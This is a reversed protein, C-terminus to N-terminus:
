SHANGTLEKAMRSYEKAFRYQRLSYEGFEAGFMRKYECWNSWLLGGAAVYCYIKVRTEDPCVNEFYIDTLRDIEERGYMSYICFMAIDIHPDCMGAYEWDTLQLMEEGQENESFLFNDCVADIHALVKEGAHADIYPKLSFVDARTKEYDRYISARGGRLSEYFEIQGFIDFERGTKLKMGHFQRLKAMCRGIDRGSHPDCVRVDKLFRTIKYGSVPDMYVADDCIGRGSIVRLAEAEGARDILRNTGEGPVRFIYKEGRCGFVFSRNTMGKKLLGEEKIGDTPVGLVRSIIDLEGSNLRTRPSGPSDLQEFSSIEVACRGPVIRAPLLMRNGRYLAEEWPLSRGAPDACLRRINERVAAADGPSIYAIGNLRPETGRADAGRLIESRRSIHVAGSGATQGTVAYWSHTECGAFLTSGSWIDCPIVYTGSLHAAARELSGVTHRDGHEPDVVLKVGYKDILYEFREKMFGVVIYIESIGAESLQAIIREALPEGGAKMLAKPAEYALTGMRMDFAAALIVANKPSQEAVYKGAKETLQRDGDLMGAATLSRLSQNTMGLSHGAAEALLRQSRFGNIYIEKLIDLEALNM